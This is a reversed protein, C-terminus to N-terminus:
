KISIMIKFFNSELIYIAKSKFLDIETVIQTDLSVTMINVNMNLLCFNFQRSHIVFKRNLLFISRDTKSIEYIYFSKIINKKSKM